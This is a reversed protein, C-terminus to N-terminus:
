SLLGKINSSISFNGAIFVAFLRCCLVQNLLKGDKDYVVLNENKVRLTNVREDNNFGIFVIQKEKFDPLQLM